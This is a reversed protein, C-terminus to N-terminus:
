KNKLKFAEKVAWEILSERFTLEATYKGKIQQQLRKIIEEQKM